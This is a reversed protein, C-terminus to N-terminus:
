ADADSLHRFAEAIAKAKGYGLLGQTLLADIGPLRTGLEVALWAMRDASGVSAALALSLEYTLSESWASPQGATVPKDEARILTRIVGLKAASAWAEIAAWRRVIGAEEADTASPCQWDAGSVSELVDALAASPPCTDWEGDTAFGTLREDRPLGLHSFPPVDDAEHGPRESRGM